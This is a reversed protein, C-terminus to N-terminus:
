CWRTSICNGATHLFHEWQGQTKIKKLKEGLKNIGSLSSGYSANCSNFLNMVNEFKSNKNTNTEQIYNTRHQEINNQSKDNEKNDNLKDYTNNVNIEEYKYIQYM